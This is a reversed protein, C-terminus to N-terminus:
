RIPLFSSCRNHVSDGLEQLFSKVPIDESCPRADTSLSVRWVLGPLYFPARNLFPTRWKEALESLWGSMTSQLRLLLTRELM